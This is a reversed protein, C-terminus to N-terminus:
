AKVRWTFYIKKGYQKELKVREAEMEEMSEVTFPHKRTATMEGNEKTVKIIEIM